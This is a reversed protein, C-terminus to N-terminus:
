PVACVKAVVGEEGVAKEAAVGAIVKEKDEVGAM